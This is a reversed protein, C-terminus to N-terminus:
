YEMKSLDVVRTKPLTDHWGTGDGRFLFSFPEFPIFRCLTRGAIQGASPREGYETVVMTNTVMKGVTKGWAAECIFYYAFFYVYPSFIAAFSLETGYPSGGMLANSGSVFGIIFFLVYFVIIDVLHNALRQGKSALANNINFSESTEDIDLINDENM